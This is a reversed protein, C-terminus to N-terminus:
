EDEKKRLREEGDQYDKGKEITYEEEQHHQYREEMEEDFDALTHSTSVFLDAARLSEDKWGFGKLYIVEMGFWERGDARDIVRIDRISINVEDCM